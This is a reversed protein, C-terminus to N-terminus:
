NTKLNLIVEMAKRREDSLRKIENELSSIHSELGDISDICFNFAEQIKELM